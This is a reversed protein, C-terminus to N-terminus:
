IRKNRWLVAAMIGVYAVATWGQIDTSYGMRDEFGILMNVLIPSGLVAFLWLVFNEKGEM